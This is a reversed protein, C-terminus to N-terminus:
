HDPDDTHFVSIAGSSCAVYIRKLGSDFKIVDAGPAMPLFAIAQHSIDLM